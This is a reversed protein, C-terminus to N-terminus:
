PRDLGFTMRAITNDATLAPILSLSCIKEFLNSGKKDYFFKPNIFKSDRNLSSSIEENKKNLAQISNQILNSFVIECQRNDCNVIIDESPINVKISDPIKVFEICTKLIKNMSHDELVAPRIRVFDLVDEIQHTMRDTARGISAFSKKSKEDEGQLLKINEISTKIVTLPNRLDHSLRSALEGIASLKETKVKLKEVALEKELEITKEISGTMERFSKGLESIEDDGQVDIDANFNGGIISKTADRLNLIPRTIRHSIILGAILSIGTIIITIIIITSQVDQITDGHDSLIVSENKEYVLVWGFTPLEKFVAHIINGDRTEYKIYGNQMMSSQEIIDDIAESNYLGSTSPFYDEFEPVNEKESFDIKSDAIIYGQPDIIYMRGHETKIIDQFITLPMEFHYFAPKEKDGLVVPSTYAFVWRFTDPSLYPFQIHVEEEAIAFSPTFFPAGMEEPSLFEDVEIKSLVLRAHEQGTVDILCTEDVQFKNQFHYIWQELEKKIERQNDTFQMVDNEFVNGAKTEPLEFYEVFLPNKLTFVLDESARSHLFNLETYHNNIIGEM